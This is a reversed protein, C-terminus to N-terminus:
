LALRQRRSADKLEILLHTKLDETTQVSIRVVRPEVRRAEDAISRFDPDLDDVIM